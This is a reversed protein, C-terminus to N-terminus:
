EGAWGCRFLYNISRVPAAGQRSLFRGIGSLPKIIRIRPSFPYRDGDIIRDLEGLLAASEEDTLPLDMGISMPANVTELSTRDARIASGAPKCETFLGNINIISFMGHVNYVAM